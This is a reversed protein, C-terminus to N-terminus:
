NGIDFVQEFTCTLSASGTVPDMRKWPKQCIVKVRNGDAGTFWFWSVGRQKTLFADIAAIEVPSRNNFALTFTDALNNIGVPTRQSYGDGFKSVTVAPTTETEMNVSPMWTFTDAM